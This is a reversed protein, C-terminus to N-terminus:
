AMQSDIKGIKKGAFEGSIIAIVINVPNPAATKLLSKPFKLSTGFTLNTSMPPM